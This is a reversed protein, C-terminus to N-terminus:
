GGWARGPLGPDEAPPGGPRPVRHHRGALVPRPRRDLLTARRDASPPHVARRHAGSRGPVRPGTGGIHIQGVAWPPCIELRHDLVRMTQNSLPRGYPVARWGPDVTGVEYVNSWISAETAGGMAVIRADAWRERLRGALAPSIWDGSLLFARVPPPAMGPRQAVVEALMEALAPVSNWVSVGHQGAAAWGVPDPRPSADPLVLAAGAALTGFIDWVSLDFSLASIGFVRDDPCLGIRRNVDLITNVAGRHEIEVGKPRGTSGSTYIVYALDSPGSGPRGPLPGAAAPLSDVAMMAVGDLGAVGGSQTLAVATSCQGALHRIREVPLSSDVPCYAAGARLVGLVAVVQEWGKAMVVPVVDERTVGYERLRHAVARSATELDGYTLTLQSTVLAPAAPSAAAQRLFADELRDAPLAAATRNAAAVVMRHRAPGLDPAAAEPGSGALTDLLDRYADFMCDPLGPPFADDVVDWVCEVAGGPAEQIQNDILVQPTRLCSDVIRCAPGAPTGGPGGASLMSTFVYPLAARPTWGRRTAVERMVRVASVEAHELDRWLQRQLLQGRAWFGVDGRQDVELALTAGFQGVTAAWEPHGDVWTQHLVNLCFHPTAAWRGLIEAFAHLLAATPLIRHRGFVGRLRQWTPPSLRCTRRTFRVPDIAEPQRALPLAPAEPLADLRAAWYQWHERYADTHERALLSLRATRYPVPVPPLPAAPDRYLEAWERVLQRISRGDLLLLSLAIHVRARHPRVRHAVVEFLPWRTPDIGEDRMRRRTCRLVAAREEAGIGALEVVPLRVPGPDALVRQGGEALVVTRLHEHREVLRNLAAQARAPDFGAVDLELYHNPRFGGLEILRSMGVLYGEQLDTLPFPASGPATV